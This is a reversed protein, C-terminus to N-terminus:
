YLQERIDFHDIKNFLVVDRQYVSLTYTPNVKVPIQTLESFFGLSPSGNKWSQGLTLLVLSGALWFLLTFMHNQQMCIRIFFM